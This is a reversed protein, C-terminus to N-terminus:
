PCFGLDELLPYDADRVCVPVKAVQKDCEETCVFGNACDVDLDCPVTCYTDDNPGVCFGSVCEIQAGDKCWDTYCMNDCSVGLDGTWGAGENSAEDACSLVLAAFILCIACAVALRVPM